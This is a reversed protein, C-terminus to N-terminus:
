IHILSLDLAGLMRQRLCDEPAFWQHLRLLGPKGLKEELLAAHMPLIKPRFRWEHAPMIRLGDQVRAMLHDEAIKEPQDVLCPIQHEGSIDEPGVIRGDPSGEDGVCVHQLRRIAEQYLRKRQSSLQLHLKLM